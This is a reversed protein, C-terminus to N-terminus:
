INLSVCFECFVEPREGSEIRLYFVENDKIERGCECKMTM